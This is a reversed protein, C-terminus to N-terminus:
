EVGAVVTSIGIRCRVSKFPKVPNLTLFSVCFAGVTVTVTPARVLKM